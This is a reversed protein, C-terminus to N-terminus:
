EDAFAALFATTGGDLQLASGTAYTALALYVIAEAVENAKTASGVSRVRRELDRWAAAPDDLAALDRQVMPTDVTGPCVANIRM